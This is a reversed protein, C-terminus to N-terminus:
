RVAEETPEVEIEEHLYLLEGSRWRVLVGKPTHALVLGSRRTLRTRFRLGDGMERMRVPQLQYRRPDV